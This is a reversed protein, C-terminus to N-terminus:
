IPNEENNINNKTESKETLETDYQVFADATANVFEKSNRMAELVLNTMDKTSSHLFSYAKGEQKDGMLVVCRFHRAADASKEVKELVKKIQLFYNQNINKNM